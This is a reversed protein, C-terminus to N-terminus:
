KENAVGRLKGFSARVNYLWVCAFIVGFFLLEGFIKFFEQKRHSIQESKHEPGSPIGVSGSAAAVASDFQSSAFKNLM